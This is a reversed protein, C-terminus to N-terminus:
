RATDSPQTQAALADAPLLDLITVHVRVRSGYIRFGEFAPIDQMFAPRLQGQGELEQFTAALPQRYEPAKVVWRVHERRLLNMLTAPDDVKAPDMLWSNEPRGEIFPANLYYLHRLFVM